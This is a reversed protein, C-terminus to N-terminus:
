PPPHHLNNTTYYYSSTLSLPSSLAPSVLCRGAIGGAELGRESRTSGGGEGAVHLDDGQKVLARDLVVTAKYGASDGAYPVATGVQSPHLRTLHCM